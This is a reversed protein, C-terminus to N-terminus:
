VILNWYLLEDLVFVIIWVFYYQLSILGNFYAYKGDYKWIRKNYIYLLISGFILECLYINFPYFICRLIINDISKHLIIMPSWLFTIGMQTITTHTCYPKDNTEIYRIITRLCEEFLAFSVTYILSTYLIYPIFM